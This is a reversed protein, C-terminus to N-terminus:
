TLTLRMGFRGALETRLPLSVLATPLVLTDLKGPDLGDAVARLSQDPVFEEAEERPTEFLMGVLARFGGLDATRITLCRLRSVWPRAALDELSAGFASWRAPPLPFAVSQRFLRLLDNLIEGIPSGYERPDGLTIDLEELHELTCAAGLVRVGEPSVRGTLRLSRLDRWCPEAVLLRIVEPDTGMPGATLRRLSNLHASRVVGAATDPSLRDFCLEPLRRLHPGDIREWEDLSVTFGLALRVLPVADGWRHILEVGGEPTRVSHFRIEEPFGGGFRVTLGYEDALITRDSVSYRYPWNRPWRPRRLARVMRDRVKRGPVHPVPLGAALCLPRWWDIAWEEFLMDRLAAHAVHDVRLEGAQELEIEARIFEAHAVHVPLGSEELADAYVLRITRDSPSDIVAQYLMELTSLM